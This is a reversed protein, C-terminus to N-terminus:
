DTTWGWIHIVNMAVSNVGKKRQNKMMLYALTFASSGINEGIAGVVM